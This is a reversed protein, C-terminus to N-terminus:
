GEMQQQQQQQKWKTGRSITEGTQASLSLLAYIITEATKAKISLWKRRAKVSAETAYRSNPIVDSGRKWVLSPLAGRTQQM